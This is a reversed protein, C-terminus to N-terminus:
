KKSRRSLLWAAGYGAVLALLPEAVLRFRPSGVTGPTLLLASSLVMGLLVWQKEAPELHRFGIIGALALGYLLFLHLLSWILIILNQPRSIIESLKPGDGLLARNLKKIQRAGDSSGLAAAVSSPHPPALCLGTGRTWLYTLQKPHRRLVDLALANARALKKPELTIDHDYGYKSNIESGMLIRASDVNIGQELAIVRPAHYYINNVYIVSSLFPFGFVLANRLVWAGPLVAWLALFSAYKKIFGKGVFLGLLPGLVVLGPRTLAALGMLLGSVASCYTKNERQGRELAMLSLIVLGVATNETMLGSQYKVSLPSLLILGSAVLGPLGSGLKRYVWFGVLAWILAQFMVVLFNTNGPITYFLALFLPYVPTRLGDPLCGPFWSMCFSGHHVLNEALKLYQACDANLSISIDPHMLAPIAFVLRIGLFVAFVWFDRSRIWGRTWGVAPM